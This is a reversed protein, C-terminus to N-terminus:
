ASPPLGGTPARGGPGDGDPWAAALGAADLTRALLRSMRAHHSGRWYIGGCDPCRSFAAQERYVRPPVEAEVSERGVPELCGNCRLCRAFPRMLGALDFRRFVEVLQDPPRESRVFAGRRVISRKLLGVDRTLLVRDDADALRALEDDAADRRYATDFGCMRLYAALRGLHGDLVFHAPGAPRAPAVAGPALGGGRWGAPFADVRDGPALRRDLGVPADDVLVLAVEPHPVGAAELVDKIGPRGAIPRRLTVDRLSAPLFDNLDGHFRLEVTAPPQDASRGVRRTRSPRSTM